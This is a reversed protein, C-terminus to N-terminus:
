LHRRWFAETRADMRHIWFHSAINAMNPVQIHQFTACLRLVELLQVMGQLCLRHLISNWRNSMRGWLLAQQLILSCVHKGNLICLFYIILFISKVWFLKWNWSSDTMYIVHLPLENGEFWPSYLLNSSALILFLLFPRVSPSAHVFLCIQDTLVLRHSPLFILLMKCTWFPKSYSSWICFARSQLYSLNHILRM